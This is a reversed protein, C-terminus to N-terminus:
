RLEVLLENQRDVLVQVRTKASPFTLVRKGAQLKEQGKGWKAELVKVLLDKQALTAFPLAFVAASTRGTQPDFQLGILTLATAFETPPLQVSAGISTAAMKPYVKALQELTLGILPLGMKDGPGLLSMVPMYESLQVVGLTADYRARWGTRPNFWTPKTDIETPPGWAANILPGANAPLGVILVSRVRDDKGVDVALRVDEPGAPIEAGSAFLAGLQDRTMGLKVFALTSPPAVERGFFAATLSHHFALRCLTQRCSVDVRWEDGRWSTIGENAADVTKVPKGWQKTLKAVLGAAPAEIGIRSVVNNSILVYYKAGGTAPKILRQRDAADTYTPDLEFARLAVKADDLTMGARIGDLADSPAVTKAFMSSADAPASAMLSISVVATIATFV